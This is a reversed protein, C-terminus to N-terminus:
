GPTNNVRCNKVTNLANQLEFIRLEISLTFRKEPDTLLGILGEIKELLSYVTQRSSGLHHAVTTISLGHDLLLRLTHLLKKTNRHGFLHKLFHPEPLDAQQSLQYLITFPNSSEFVCIPEQISDSKSLELAVRAETIQNTFHREFTLIGRHQISFSVGGHIPDNGHHFLSCFNANLLSNTVETKTFLVARCEGGNMSFFIRANNDAELKRWLFSLEYKSDAFHFIGISLYSYEEEIEKLSLGLRNDLPFVSTLNDSFLFNQIRTWKDPLEQDGATGFPSAALYSSSQFDYRLVPHKMIEISWKQATEILDEHLKVLQTVEDMIQLISDKSYLYISPLHLRDAISCVFGGGIIADFDERKLSLLLSEIDEKTKYSFYHFQCEFEALVHVAEKIEEEFHFVAVKQGFKRAHLAAQILDFKTVKVPIIPITSVFHTRKLMEWHVGGTIILKPKLVPLKHKLVHIVEGYEVDQITVEHLPNIETMIEKMIATLKPQSLILIDSSM